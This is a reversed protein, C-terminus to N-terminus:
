VAPPYNGYFGREDGALFQQHQQDARECLEAIRRREAIGEDDHRASWGRIFRAVIAVLVVAALLWAYHAFFGLVVLVLLILPL